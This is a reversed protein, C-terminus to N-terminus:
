ESVHRFSWFSSNVMPLKLFGDIHAMSAGSEILWAAMKFDDLSKFPHYINTKREEPYMDTNDINELINFGKGFTKGAGPFYDRIPLSTTRRRYREDFSDSDSDYSLFGDSSSDSRSEDFLRAEPEPPSTPITPNQFLVASTGAYHCPESQRLPEPLLWPVAGDDISM